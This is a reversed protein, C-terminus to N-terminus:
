ESRVSSRPYTSSQVPHVADRWLAQVVEVKAKGRQRLLEIFYCGAGFFQVELGILLLLHAAGEAVMHKTKTTSYPSLPM